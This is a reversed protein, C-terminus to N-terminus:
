HDINKPKKGREAIPREIYIHFPVSFVATLLTALLFILSMQFVNISAITKIDVTGFVIAAAIAIFPFHFLYIPFALRSLPRWVPLAFLKKIYSFGHNSHWCGLILLVIGLSFIQRGLALVVLNLNASFPSYYWSSPNHAPLLLPAGMLVISATAAALGNIKNRFIFDLKEAHRIKIFALFLGMVFPGFRTRNAEYFLASMRNSFAGRDMALFLDTIPRLYLDSNALLVWLCIVVSSAVLAALVLARHKTKKLIFFLAPLLILYQVEVTLFWGVPIITREGPIMNNLFFLNSFFYKGFYSWQGITYILLATVFLPYIRFFKKIFFEKASGLDYKEIKKFVSLGIVLASLLFFADVGKEGHWIPQLWAPMDLIFQKAKEYEFAQIIGVAIHFAIIGLASIARIADIAPDHKENKEFIEKFYKKASM